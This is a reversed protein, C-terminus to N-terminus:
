GKESDSLPFEQRSLIRCYEINALTVPDIKLITSRASPVIHWRSLANLRTTAFKATQKALLVTPLWNLM